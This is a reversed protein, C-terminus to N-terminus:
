KEFKYKIGDAGIYKFSERMNGQKIKIKEWAYLLFDAWSGSKKFVDIHFCDYTEGYESSSHSTNIKFKDEGNETLTFDANADDSMFSSSEHYKISFKNNEWVFLIEKDTYDKGKHCLNDLNILKQKKNDSSSYYKIEEWLAILAQDLEHDIAFKSLTKKLKLDESYKKKMATKYEETSKKVEKELEIKKKNIKDLFNDHFDENIAKANSSKDQPPPNKTNSKILKSFLVVAIIIVIIWGFSDM